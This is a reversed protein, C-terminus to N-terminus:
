IVFVLVRISHTLVDKLEFTRDEEAYSKEGKATCATIFTMSGLVAVLISKFSILITLFIPPVMSSVVKTSPRTKSLHLGLVAAPPGVLISFALIAKTWNWIAVGLVSM